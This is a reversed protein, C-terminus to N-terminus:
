FHPLQKGATFGNEILWHDISHQKHATHVFRDAWQDDESWVCVCIEGNGPLNILLKGGYGSFYHIKFRTSYRYLYSGPASHGDDGVDGGGDGAGDIMSCDILFLLPCVTNYLHDPFVCFSGFRQVLQGLRFRKDWTQSFYQYFRAVSLTWSCGQRNNNPESSFPHLIDAQFSISLLNFIFLEILCLSVSKQKTM